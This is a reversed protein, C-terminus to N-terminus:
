LKYDGDTETEIWEFLEQAQFWAEDDGGYKDFVSAIDGQSLTDHEGCADALLQAECLKELRIFYAVAADVTSAASLIGHNQLIVAKGHPGLAKCIARGEEDDLVVGGFDNYLRVTEAFSAGEAGNALAGLL